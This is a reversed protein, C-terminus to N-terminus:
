VTSDVHRGIEEFAEWDENRQLLSVLPGMKATQCAEQHSVNAHNLRDPRSHLIVLVNEKLSNECWRGRSWRSQWTKWAQTSDDIM